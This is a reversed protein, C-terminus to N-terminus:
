GTHKIKRGVTFIQITHVNEIAGTAGNREGAFFDNKGLTKINVLIVFLDGFHEISVVVGDVARVYFGFGSGLFGSGLGFRGSGLGFRGSGLRLLSSGLGFLSSGLGFLGSGLRLLGSGLRLLGSGLRFLSSGLGFLSGGLGLLSRRFLRSGLFRNGLLGYYLCSPTGIGCVKCAATSQLFCKIRSRIITRDGVNLHHIVSGKFAGKNGIAALKRKIQIAFFNRIGTVNDIHVIGGNNSNSISRGFM